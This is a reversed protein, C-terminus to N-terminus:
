LLIARAVQEADGSGLAHQRLADAAEKANEFDRLSLSRLQQRRVSAAVLQLM